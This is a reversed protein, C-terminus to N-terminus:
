DWDERLGEEKVEYLSSTGLLPNHAVSELRRVSRGDRLGERWQGLELVAERSFTGTKRVYFAPEYM